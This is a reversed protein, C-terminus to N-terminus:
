RNCNAHCRDINTGGAPLTVSQMQDCSTNCAARVNAAAASNCTANGGCDSADKEVKKQFDTKKADAKEQQLKAKAAKAGGGDGGGDKNKLKNGGARSNVSNQQSTTQVM